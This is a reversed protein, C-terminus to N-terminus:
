VRKNMLGGLRVIRQHTNSSVVAGGAGAGGIDFYLFMAAWREGDPITVDPVVNLGRWPSAQNMASYRKAATDASM